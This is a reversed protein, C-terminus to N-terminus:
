SSNGAACEQTPPTDTIHAAPPSRSFAMKEHWGDSRGVSKTYGSTSLHGRPKALTEGVRIKPSDDVSGRPYSEFQGKFIDSCEYSQNQRMYNTGYFLFKFGARHM